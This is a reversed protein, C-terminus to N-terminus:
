RAMGMLTQVVSETKGDEVALFITNDGAISGVVGPLNLIDIAEGASSGGGSLTTVVVINGASKVSTVTEKFIRLLRETNVVTSFENVAYKYVGKEAQVKILHLEKIDRSVTAQTVHFGVEKLRASLEEQTDVNHESIIKLIARHRKEKM